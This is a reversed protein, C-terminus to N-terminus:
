IWYDDIRKGVNGRQDGLRWTKSIYARLKTLIRMEIDCPHYAYLSCSLM